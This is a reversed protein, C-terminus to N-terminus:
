NPLRTSGAFLPRQTNHHNLAIRLSLAGMKQKYDDLIVFDGDIGNNKTILHLLPVRVYGLTIFDQGEMQQSLTEQSARDNFADSPQCQSNIYHRVEFVARKTKLYDFIKTDMQVQLSYTEQYIPNLSNYLMRTSQKSDPFKQNLNEDEDFISSLVVLNMGHKLIQTLIRRRDVHTNGRSMNSPANDLGDFVGTNIKAFHEINEISEKLNTVKDIHVSLLANLPIKRNIYTERQMFCSTYANPGRLGQKILKQEKKFSKAEQKTLYQPLSQYSIEIALKGIICNARQSYSTGYLFIVRNMVAKQDKRNYSRQKQEYDIVLDALDEMPLQANGIVFERGDQYLALSLNFLNTSQANTTALQKNTCM